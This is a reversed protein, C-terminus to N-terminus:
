VYAQIFKKLDEKAKKQYKGLASRDIGTKKQITRLSETQSQVLIATELFDHPTSLKVAIATELAQYIHEKSEPEEPTYKDPDKYAFEKLPSGNRNRKLFLDKIIWYGLAKLNPWKALKQDSVAIFKLYFESFLDDALYRGKYCSRCMDRYAKENALIHENIIQM